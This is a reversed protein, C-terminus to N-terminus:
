ELSRKASSRLDTSCSALWGLHGEETCDRTIFNVENMALRAGATM